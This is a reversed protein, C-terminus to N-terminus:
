RGFNTAAKDGVNVSAGDKAMTIRCFAISGEVETVLAEGKYGKDNYLAFTHGKMLDGGGKKTYEITVLKDAVHSVRGEADPQALGLFADGFKAKGNSILIKQQGIEADKAAVAGNLDAIKADLAAIKNNAETLKAEAQQQANLAKHKEEDATMAMALTKKADEGAAEVKSAVTSWHSLIGKVDGEISALKKSLIENEAKAESLQADNRKSLTDLSSVQTKAASLETTLSTKEAEFESTKAALKTEEKKYLDKYNTHNKLFTGAFAVFGGALVLNLVVFVRGIPSM